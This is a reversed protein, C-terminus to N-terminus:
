APELAHLLYRVGPRLYEPWAWAATGHLRRVLPTLDELRVSRWGTARLIATFAADGLPGSGGPSGPGGTAFGDAPVLRGGGKMARRLASLAARKDPLLNLVSLATARDFPGAPLSEADGEFWDM